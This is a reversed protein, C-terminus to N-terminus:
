HYINPAGSTPLKKVSVETDMFETLPNKGALLDTIVTTAVAAFGQNMLDILEDGLGDAGPFYHYRRMRARWRMNWMVNTPTMQNAISMKTEDSQSEGTSRPDYYFESKAVGVYVDNPAGVVVKSGSKAQQGAIVLRQTAWTDDYDGIATSWIGFYDLGMKADPFLMMPSYTTDSSKVGPDTMSMPLPSLADAFKGFGGGKLASMIKGIDDEIACFGTAQIGAIAPLGLRIIDTAVESGTGDDCFWQSFWDLGLGIYKSLANPPAIGGVTTIDDIAAICLDKYSDSTVPLGYRVPGNPTKKNSSSDGSLLSSMSFGSDLNWPIQSYAFTSTAGVGNKLNTSDQYYYQVNGSKGAAIWPWVVAIGVEADHLLKLATHVGSDWSSLKKKWNEIDNCKSTCLAVTAV